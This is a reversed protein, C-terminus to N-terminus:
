GQINQMEYGGVMIMDDLDAKTLDNSSRVWYQNNILSYTEYKDTVGFIFYNPAGSCYVVLSKRIM